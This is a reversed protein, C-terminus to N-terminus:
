LRTVWMTKSLYGAFAEEVKVSRDSNFTFLLNRMTGMDDIAERHKFGVKEGVVVVCLVVKFGREGKKALGEEGRCNWLFEM